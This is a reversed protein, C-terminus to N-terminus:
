NCRAPLKLNNLFAVFGVTGFAISALALFPYATVAALVYGDAFPNSEWERYVGACVAAWSIFGASLWLLHSWISWTGQLLRRGAEERPHKYVLTLNRWRM